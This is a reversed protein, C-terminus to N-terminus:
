EIKLVLVLVQVLAHVVPKKRTPLVQVGQSVLQEVQMEELLFQVAQTAL